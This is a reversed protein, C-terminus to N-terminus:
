EMRWRLAGCETCYESLLVGEGWLHTAHAVNWRHSCLLRELWRPM